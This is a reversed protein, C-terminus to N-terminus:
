QLESPSRTGGPPKEWPLSDAPPPADTFLIQTRCTQPDSTQLSGPIQPGCRGPISGRALLLGDASPDTTEASAKSCQDRVMSQDLLYLTMSRPLSSVGTKRATLVMIQVFRTGTKRVWTVVPCLLPWHCTIPSIPHSRQPFRKVTLHGRRDGGQEGRWFVSTIEWRATTTWM